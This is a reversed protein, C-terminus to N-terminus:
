FTSGRAVTQNAQATPGLLPSLVEYKWKTQLDSCIIHLEM